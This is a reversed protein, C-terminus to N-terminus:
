WGVCCVLNCNCCCIFSIGASRLICPNYQFAIKSGWFLKDHFVAWPFLWYQSPLLSVSGPHQPLPEFIHSVLVKLFAHIINSPSRLAEFSNQWPFCSLSVAQALFTLPCCTWNPPSPAWIHSIGASILICLYTIQSGWFLKDHFYSLSVVRMLFTLNAECSGASRNTYAPFNHWDPYCHCIISQAM